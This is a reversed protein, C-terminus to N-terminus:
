NECAHKRIGFCLQELWELLVIEGKMELSSEKCVLRLIQEYYGSSKLKQLFEKSNNELQYNILKLVMTQINLLQIDSSEKSADENSGLLNCDNILTKLMDASLDFAKKEAAEVM